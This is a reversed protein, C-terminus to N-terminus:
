RRSAGPGDAQGGERHLDLAAQSDHRSYRGGRRRRGHQRLSRRLDEPAQADRRRALLGGRRGPAGAPPDDRLEQGGGPERPDRPVARASPRRRDHGLVPAHLGGPEEAPGQRGMKPSRSKRARARPHRTVVINQRRLPRSRSTRRHGRRARGGPRARARNRGKWAFNPMSQRRSRAASTAGTTAATRCTDVGVGRNIMEQLEDPISSRSDDGGRAHDTEEPLADRAVPQVDANRVEGARDADDLLDPPDQGRPDPEPDGANPVLIELAM